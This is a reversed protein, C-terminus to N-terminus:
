TDPLNVLLYLKFQTVDITVFIVNLAKFNNNALRKEETTWSQEPKLTVVKTEDNATVPPYWRTLNIVVREDTSKIYAKVRVKRYAYNKEDLMPLRPVSTSNKMGAFDYIKKGLIENFLDTVQVLVM